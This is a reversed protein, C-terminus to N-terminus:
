WLPEAVPKCRAASEHADRCETKICVHPIKRGDSNISCDACCWETIAGCIECPLYIEEVEDM